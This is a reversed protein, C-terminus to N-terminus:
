KEEPLPYEEAGIGDKVGHLGPVTGPHIDHRGGVVRKVNKLPAQWTV